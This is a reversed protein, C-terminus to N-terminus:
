QMGWMPDSAPAIGLGIFCDIANLPWYIVRCYGNLLTWRDIAEQPPLDNLNESSLYYVGDMDFRRAEEYGRRSLVCYSSVYMMLVVILIPKVITSFKKRHDEESM